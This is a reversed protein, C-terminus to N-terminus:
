FCTRFGEHVLIVRVLGTKKQLLYIAQNIFASSALALVYPGYYTANHLKQRITTNYMCLKFKCLDLGFM